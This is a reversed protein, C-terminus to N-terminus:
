RGTRLWVAFYAVPFLAVSYMACVVLGLPAWAIQITGVYAWEIGLWHGCMLAPPWAWARRPHVFSLVACAIATPAMGFLWFDPSDWAELQGSRIAVIRNIVFGLAVAVGILLKFLWPHTPRAPTTPFRRAQEADYEGGCEPCRIPDGSQGFLDYGCQPCVGHRDFVSQSSDTMGAGVLPRM